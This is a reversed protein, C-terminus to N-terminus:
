IWSLLIRKKFDQSVRKKINKKIAMIPTNRTVETSCTLVTVWKTPEWSPIGTTCRTDAM